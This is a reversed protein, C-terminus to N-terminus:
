EQDNNTVVFKENRVHVIDCCIVITAFKFYMDKQKNYFTHNFLLKWMVQIWFM